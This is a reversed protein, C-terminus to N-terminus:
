VQIVVTELLSLLTRKMPPGASNGPGWLPIGPISPVLALTPAAPSPAADYLLPLKSEGGSPYAQFFTATYDRCHDCGPAVGIQEADFREPSAVAVASGAVECCPKAALEYQVEGDDHLCVFFAGPGALPLSQALLVLVAGMRTTM